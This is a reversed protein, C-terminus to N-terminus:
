RSAASVVHISNALDTTTAADGLTPHARDLRCWSRRRVFSLGGRRRSIVASLTAYVENDRRPPLCADRRLTTTIRRTARECQRSVAGRTEAKGVLGFSISTANIWVAYRELLNSPIAGRARDILGRRYRRAVLSPRGDM